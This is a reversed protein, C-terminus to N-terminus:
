FKATLLLKISPHDVAQRSLFVVYDGLSSRSWDQLALTDAHAIPLDIRSTFFGAVPTMYSFGLMCTRSKAPSHSRYAMHDIRLERGSLRMQFGDGMIFDRPIQGLFPIRDLLDEPSRVSSEQQKVQNAYNLSPDAHAIGACALLGLVLGWGGNRNM